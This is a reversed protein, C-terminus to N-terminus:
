PGGTGFRASLFDRHGRVADRARVARGGPFQLEELVLLGRGTGVAIGSGMEGVVVGPPGDGELPTAKLIRVPGRDWETFAGPRPNFARVRRALDEAPLLWDLRADERQLLRTYTADAEDQAVPEIDGHLWGPLNELLLDASLAALREHLQGGTEEPGVPTEVQALIPGADMKSAMLMLTTGTRRDGALIPAIVPSPGRYLPLLSPHLNLARFRPLDLVAKPLIQGYSAVVIVGPALAALADIAEPARVRSPQHIPLNALIARDKVPNSSARRGRGAPRDPQTVVGVVETPTTLAPGRTLLAELIPLSFTDSGM